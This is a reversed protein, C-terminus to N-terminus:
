NQKKQQQLGLFQERKQIPYSAYIEIFVIYKYKINEPTFPKNRPSFYIPCHIIKELWFVKQFELFVFINYGNLLSSTKASKADEMVNYINIKEINSFCCWLMAAYELRQMVIIAWFKQSTNRLFESLYFIRFIRWFHNITKKRCPNPLKRKITLM